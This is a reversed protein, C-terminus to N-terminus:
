AGRWGLAAGRPLAISRHRLLTIGRHALLQAQTCLPLYVNIHALAGHATRTRKAVCLRSALRAVCSAVAVAMNGAKRWRVNHTLVGVYAMGIGRWAAWAGEHYGSYAM